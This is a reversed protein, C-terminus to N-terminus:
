RIVGSNGDLDPHWPWLVRFAYALISNGMFKIAITPHRPLGISLKGDHTGTSPSVFRHLLLGLLAIYSERIMYNHSRPWTIDSNPFVSYTFTNIIFAARVHAKYVQKAFSLSCLLTKGSSLMHRNALQGYSKNLVIVRGRWHWHWHWFEVGVGMLEPISPVVGAVEAVINPGCDPNSCLSASSM